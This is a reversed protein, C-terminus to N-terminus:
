TEVAVQCLQRGFLEHPLDQYVAAGNALQDDPMVMPEAASSTPIDLGEATQTSAEPEPYIHDLRYVQATLQDGTTADSSRHRASVQMGGGGHQTSGITHDPSHPLSIAAAPLKPDRGNVQTLQRGALEQRWIPNICHDDLPSLASGPAHHVLSRAGRKVVAPSHELRMQEPEIAVQITFPNADFPDLPQAIDLVKFRDHLQLGLHFFIARLSQRCEAPTVGV